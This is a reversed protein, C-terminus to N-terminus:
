ASVGKFYTNSDYSTVYGNKLELVMDYKESVGAFTKHTIAIVTAPLSLIAAEIQRGLEENLASTAEDVFLLEARKYLARAISVRQREGGSLNKGNESIASHIGDPLKEIMESLGAAQCISLVEADDATKFLTINDKLSAEFLFVDQYIYAVKENFSAHSIQRLECGDVLIEGQYDDITQSLVKILTSKGSGSPGKLLYKKGKEITFSTKQLIPLDGDDYTFSVENLQIHKQLSFPQDGIFDGASDEPLKTIKDYIAKSSKLVNIHPTMNVLSFVANTTLQVVLVIQGLGIGYQTQYMLFVLVGTFLLYGVTVNTQMQLNTYLNYRLKKSELQHLKKKNKTLFNQEINNLKLIELGNFTNATDLTFEENAKSVQKQYLVTRKEFLKTIGWVLLSAALVILAITWNLFFLITISFLYLGARFIFNLLSLFFSSEFTNIDNNLNSVYVDRSQQNFQKTNLALVKDFAKIRLSLLVDRMFSIRLMRSSLLLIANLIFFTIALLVATKFFSMTQREVTEFILAIVGIQMMQAIVPFLSAFLYLMFKKKREFLLEKM